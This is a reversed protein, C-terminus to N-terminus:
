PNPLPLLNVQGSLMPSTTLTTGGAPLQNLLFFGQGFGAGGTSVNPVILGQFPIATRKYTVGSVVDVLSFTGSFAGSSNTITLNVVGDNRVLKAYPPKVLFHAWDPNTASLEVNAGGFSLQANDNGDAKLGMVIGTGTAPKYLGGHMTLAIPSTWGAKYNRVTPASQLARSWTVNGGVTHYTDNAVTGVGTFSGTNTYLSQYILLEGNPGVPASTAIVTGGTTDASKGAIVVTGAAAVTATAYSTGEPKDGGPIPAVIPDIVFNHIGAVPTTAVKHWGAILPDAVGNDNISCSTIQETTVDLTFSGTLPNLGKRVVSFTGTPNTPTTDLVGTFSYLTVGATVKGSFTGTKTTTLDFRAGLAKTADPPVTISTVTGTRDFLGAFIGVAKTDFDVIQVNFSPLTTSPGAPNTATIVVKYTGAVTPRGSIVGTTTNLVLGTPLNSAAFKTPTKHPDTTDVKIQYGNVGGYPSGVKWPSPLIQPTTPDTQSIVSPKAAILLTFMGSKKSLGTFPQRVLCYYQGEDAVTATKVTLSLTNSHLLHTDTTLIAQDPDGSVTAVKYWQYTLSNGAATATMIPSSNALILVTKDSIDVVSLEAGATASTIGADNSAKATYKGANATTVSSITYMPNTAGAVAIGARYWQVNPGTGTPTMPTGTSLSAFSASKGIGVMQDQSTPSLKITPFEADTINLVFTKATGLVPPNTPVGGTATNLTVQVSETGGLDTSPIVKMAITKSTEGPAFTLTTGTISYDKTTAATSPISPVAVGAATYGVTVSSTTAPSM